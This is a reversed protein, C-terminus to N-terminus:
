PDHGRPCWHDDDTGHCSSLEHRITMPREVGATGKYLTVLRKISEFQGAADKLTKDTIVSLKLGELLKPYKTFMTELVGFVDASMEDRLYATEAHHKFARASLNPEYMIRLDLQMEKGLENLEKLKRQIDISVEGEEIKRVLPLAVNVCAKISGL